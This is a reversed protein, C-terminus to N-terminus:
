LTANLADQASQQRAYDVQDIPGAWHLGSQGDPTTDHATISAAQAAIFGGYRTTHTYRVLESLNRLFIGKFAPGDNGCGGGECPETLVGNVTLAATAADAIGQARTLLSTDGTATSLEVLGGLIVGQNYTWTTGNNNACGGTLGDNVLSSSNIMGSAAFWNWETRARNLYTTDGAIRNHLGASLKLFLENTIANKYTRATSWWVGGGCTGDWYSNMSDADTRAMALYRSDHTYDYARLWALGWWGTDDLYSNTFNGGQASRNDDFTTGIVYSYTSRGSRSLYDILATLANAGIWWGPWSGSSPNWFQVLATAGAAVPNDANVTSRAWPTCAIEPRDGAKGCARTAGVGRHAPDDVNYMM